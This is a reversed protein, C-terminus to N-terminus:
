KAVQIERKLIQNGIPCNLCKKRDCHENKLELLAQSDFANTIEVGMKKWGKLISNEEPPLAGLLAMARSVYVEKSRSRGYFFLFPVIANIIILRISDKGLSKDSPKSVKDFVFHTKWYDSIKLNFMNLIEKENSAALVKSFLHNSQYILRALQAIRITPFNGPRMRLFKWSKRDMPSLRYKILFTEFMLRLQNPYNDQFNGALLGAQGLLLAELHAIQDRNRQLTKLPLSRALGEFAEVNKKLGFSRCLVHFFAQEWDYNYQSLVREILATKRQLREVLLRDLYARQVIANTKSFHSQCPIWSSNSILRLYKRHLGQELHPKIELAPISIGTSTKVPKDDELVVHLIVNDYAPDLDHGHQYWQRSNLHMEVQGVWLQGDLRIRAELFDPGDSDNLSGLEILEVKKGCTTRLGNQRFRQNKWVYHLFEEKM